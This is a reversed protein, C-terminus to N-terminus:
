KLKYFMKMIIEQLKKDDVYFEEFEEGAVSEGEVFTVNEADWSYELMSTMEDVTLDTVVYPSIESYLREIEEKTDEIKNKFTEFLAPIYQTQRQMRLKNDGIITIDRHRVYREAQEGDLTITEGKIFAPDISTYDEPVTITVGGLADNIKSVAAIDMAVYGDIPLEYLLESVTKKMAWCSNKAGNGYAYQTALQAKITTYHNGSTDYIDVDTMSDRSIQLVKTTKNERDVSLIMICDAQGGTGPMNELEIEANNDIGMFLINKLNYNYKYAEGNYYVVDKDTQSPIEQQNEATRKYEWYHSVAVIALIIILLVVVLTILYKKYKSNNM